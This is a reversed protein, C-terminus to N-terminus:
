VAVTKGGASGGGAPSGARASGARNNERGYSLVGKTVAMALLKVSCRGEGAYWACKNEDCLNSRLPCWKKDDDHYVVNVMGPDFGGYENM